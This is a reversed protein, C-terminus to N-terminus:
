NLSLHSVSCFLYSCKLYNIRSYFLETFLFLMTRHKFASFVLLKTLNKKLSFRFLVFNKLARFFAVGSSDRFYVCHWPLCFFSFLLRWCTLMKISTRFVANGKKTNSPSNETTVRRYITTTQVQQLLFDEMQKGLKDIQGGVNQEFREM